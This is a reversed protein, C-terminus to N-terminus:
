GWRWHSRLPDMAATGDAQVLKDVEMEVWYVRGHRRTVINTQVVDFQSNLIYELVEWAGSARALRVPRPTTRVQAGAAGSPTKAVLQLLREPSSPLRKVGAQRALTRASIVTVGITLLKVTTRPAYARLQHLGASRSTSVRWGNPLITSYGPGSIRKSAQSVGPLAACALAALLLASALIRRRRLSSIRVRRMMMPHFM